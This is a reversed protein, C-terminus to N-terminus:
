GRTFSVPGGRPIAVQMVIGPGAASQRARGCAAPTVKPTVHSKAVEGVMSLCCQIDLGRKTKM